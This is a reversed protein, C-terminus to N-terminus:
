IQVPAQVPRFFMLPFNEVMSTMLLKNQPMSLAKGIKADLSGLEINVAAATKKILGLTTIFRKPMVLDSVPFNNIARQTQAGYLADVPVKLEGMSDKEIRTKM